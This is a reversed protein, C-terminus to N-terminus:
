KTIVYVNRSIIELTNKLNPHEIQISKGSNSVNIIKKVIYNNRSKFIIEHGIYKFVNRPTLLITNMM